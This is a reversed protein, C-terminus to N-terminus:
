ATPVDSETAVELRPKWLSVVCAVSLPAALYFLRQEVLTGFYLATTIWGAVIGIRIRRSWRLM